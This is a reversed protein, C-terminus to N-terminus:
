QEKDGEPRGELSDDYDALAKVIVGRVGEFENNQGIQAGLFVMLQSVRTEIRTLRDRIEHQDM